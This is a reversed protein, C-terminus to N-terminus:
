LDAETLDLASELKIASRVERLDARDKTVVEAAVAAANAASADLLAAMLRIDVALSRGDFLLRCFVHICLVAAKLNVHSKDGLGHFVGM